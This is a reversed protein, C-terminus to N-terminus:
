VQSGSFGGGGTGDCEPCDANGILKGQSDYAVIQGTDGCTDCLAARQQTNHRAIAGLKQRARSARMADDDPSHSKLLEMRESTLVGINPFDDMQEPLQLGGREDRRLM